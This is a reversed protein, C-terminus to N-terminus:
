EPRIYFLAQGFEVMQGDEVLVSEVVGKVPAKVANFVKMVEILAVTSEAEVRDGVRVFSAAGPEPCSYFVGLMPALVPKLGETSSPAPASAPQPAPVPAPPPSAPATAATPAAAPQAVAQPAPSAAPNVLAADKSLVIKLDGTALEFYELDAEKVIRLITMLEEDSLDM